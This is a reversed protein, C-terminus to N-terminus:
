RESAYECSDQKRGFILIPCLLLAELGGLIGAHLPFSCPAAGSPVRGINPGDGKIQSRRCTIMRSLSSGRYFIM